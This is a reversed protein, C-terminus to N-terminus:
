ALLSPNSVYHTLGLAAADFLNQRGDENMWAKRVRPLHHGFAPIHRAIATAIEYKTTAGVSAFSHRVQTKSYRFLDVCEAQALRVLSRYLRRIRSSRRAGDDTFDEIVIAQPRYHEILATIASLSHANKDAGRFEKTGWDFPSEPGEFVVFAFGRTSPYIALVFSDFQKNSM